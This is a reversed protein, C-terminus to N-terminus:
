GLARALTPGDLAALVPHATPGGGMGAKLLALAGGLLPLPTRTARGLAVLFDLGQLTEALPPDPLPGAGDLLAALPPLRRGCAAALADRERGFAALLHPAAEEARPPALLRAAGLLPMPESLGAALMDQLPDVPLGFARAALTALAPALNAPLGAVWLRPRQGTVMLSGDSNRTALLPLVPLAGIRPVGGRALLQRQLLLAALGGAPALLLAPDGRLAGAIRVVGGPLVAPPLCIVVLDAGEMARGLDAAVRVPWRGALAGGGSRAGRLTVAGLIHRTGGGRPSWLVADHGRSAAQAAMATGAPGAGLVAVRLPTGPTEM